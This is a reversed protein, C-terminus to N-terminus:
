ACSKARQAASSGGHAADADDGASFPAKELKRRKWRRVMDLFSPVCFNAIYDPLFVSNARCCGDMHLAEKQNKVCEDEAISSSEQWHDVLCQVNKEWANCDSDSSGATKLMGSDSFGATKLTCVMLKKSCDAIAGSDPSEEGKGSHDGAASVEKTSSGSYKGTVGVQLLSAAHIESKDHQQQFDCFGSCSAGSVSPLLILMRMFM